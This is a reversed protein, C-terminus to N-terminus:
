GIQEAALGRGHELATAAGQGGRTVIQDCIQAGADRAALDPRTIGLADDVQHHRPELACHQLLQQTECTAVIGTVLEGPAHELRQPDLALALAAARSSPSVREGCRTNRIPFLTCTTLRSPARLCAVGARAGFDCAM